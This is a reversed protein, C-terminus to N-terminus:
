FFLHFIFKILTYTGIPCILILYIFLSRQWKPDTMFKALLFTIIGALWRKFSFKEKSIDINKNRKIESIEEKEFNEVDVQEKIEVEKEM